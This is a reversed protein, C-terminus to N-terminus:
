RSRQGDGVEGPITLHKDFPCVVHDKQSNKVSDSLCNWEKCSELSKKLYSWIEKEQNEGM